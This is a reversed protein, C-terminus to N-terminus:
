NKVGVEPLMEAREALRPHLGLLLQALIVICAPFKRRM